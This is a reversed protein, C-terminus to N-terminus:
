MIRCTQQESELIINNSLRQECHGWQRTGGYSPGSGWGPGSRGTWSEVGCSCCRYSKSWATWCPCPHACCVITVQLNPPQKPQPQIRETKEKGDCECKQNCKCKFPDECEEMCKEECEKKCKAERKKIEKYREECNEIFVKKTKEVPPPPPKIIEIGKIVKPLKCLLKRKLEEPDSLCSVLVVDKKLDYEISVIQM